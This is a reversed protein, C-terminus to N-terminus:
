CISVIRVPRSARGQGACRDEAEGGGRREAAPELQTVNGLTLIGRFAAIRASDAFGAEQAGTRESGVLLENVPEFIGDPCEEAHQAAVVDSLRDDLDRVVWRVVRVGAPRVRRCV